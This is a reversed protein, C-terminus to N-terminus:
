VIIFYAHIALSSLLWSLFQGLDLLDRNLKKRAFFIIYNDAHMFADDISLHEFICRFILEVGNKRIIRWFDVFFRWLPPFSEDFFGKLFFGSMESVQVAFDLRYLM